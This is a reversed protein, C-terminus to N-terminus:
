RPDGGHWDPDNLWWRDVEQSISGLEEDLEDDEQILDALTEEKEAREDKDQEFQIGREKIQALIKSSIEPQSLAGTIDRQWRLAPYFEAGTSIAQQLDEDSRINKEELFKAVRDNYAQQLQQDDMSVGLYDLVPTIFLLDKKAEEWGILELPMHQFKSDRAFFKKGNKEVWNDHIASLAAIALENRNGLPRAAESLQRLGYNYGVHDYDIIHDTRDEEMGQLSYVETDVAYKIKSDVEIGNSKLYEYIGEIGAEISPKAGVRAELEKMSSTRVVKEADEEPLQEWNMLANKAVQYYPIDLKRMNIMQLERNEKAKATVDARISEATGRGFQSEVADLDIANLKFDPGLKALGFIAERAGVATDKPLDFYAILSKRLRDQINRNLAGRERNDLYRDLNIHHEKDLTKIINIVSTLRSEIIAPDLDPFVEFEETIYKELEEVREPYIYKRGKEVLKKIRKENPNTKM